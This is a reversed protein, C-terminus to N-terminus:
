SVEEERTNVKDVLGKPVCVEPQEVATLHTDDPRARTFEGSIRTALNMVAALRLPVTARVQSYPAGHLFYVVDVMADEFLPLQNPGGVVNSGSVLYEARIQTPEGEPKVLLVSRPDETKVTRGMGDIGDRILAVGKGEAERTAKNLAVLKSDSPLEHIAVGATRADLRRKLCETLAEVINGEVHDVLEADLERSGNRELWSLKFSSESFTIEDSLDVNNPAAKDLAEATALVSALEDRSIVFGTSTIKSRSSKMRM